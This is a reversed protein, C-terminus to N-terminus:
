GDQLTPDDLEPVGLDNELVNITSPIGLLDYYLDGRSIVQLLTDASQFPVATQAFTKLDDAPDGEFEIAFPNAIVTAEWADGFGKNKVLIDASDADWGYDRLDIRLILGEADIEVPKRILPERSLSNLIKATAQRYIEIEDDCLGSNHLHTLTLYRTFKRDATNDLGFSIDKAMEKVTEDLSIFDNDLCDAPAQAPPAGALIWSRILETEDSSLANNEAPPPMPNSESTIRVLIRSAEPDYREVKGQAVLAALDTIYDIGGKANDGSHCQSCKATLLDRTENAIAGQDVGSDTDGSDTDGSDSDSNGSDSDTLGGFDGSDISFGDGMACGGLCLSLAAVRIYASTLHITHKKSM